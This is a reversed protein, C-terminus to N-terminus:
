PRARTEGNGQGGAAASAPAAAPRAGAAAPAAAAVVRVLDGDNLFGAGQVVIQAGEPLASTIEVREGVRRGTQM